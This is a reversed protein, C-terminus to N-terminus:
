RRETCSVGLGSFDYGRQSRALNAAASFVFFLAIITSSDGIFGSSVVTLGNRRSRRALEISFLRKYMSACSAAM